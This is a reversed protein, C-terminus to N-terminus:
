HAAYRPAPTTVRYFYVRMLAGDRGTVGLSVQASSRLIYGDVPLGRIMAEVHATFASSEVRIRGPGIVRSGALRGNVDDTYPPGPYRMTCAEWPTVITHVGVGPPNEPFTTFELRAGALRLPSGVQRFKWQVAANTLPGVDIGGYNCFVREDRVYGFQEPQVEFSDIPTGPALTDFRWVPGDASEQTSDNVVRISWYVRRGLGWPAPAFLYPTFSTM